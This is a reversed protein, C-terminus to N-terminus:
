KQRVKVVVQSTLGVVYRFCFNRARASEQDFRREHSHGAGSSDYVARNWLATSSPFAMKSSYKGSLIEAKLTEYVKRYNAGKDMPM